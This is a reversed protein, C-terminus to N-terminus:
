AHYQAQVQSDQSSKNIAICHNKKNFHPRPNACPICITFLKKGCHRVQLTVATRHYGLLQCSWNVSRKYFFNSLLTEKAYQAGSIKSHLPCLIANIGRFLNQKVERVKHLSCSVCPLNYARRCSPHNSVCTVKGVSMMKYPRMWSVSKLKDLSSNLILVYCMNVNRNSFKSCYMICCIFLPCEVLKNLGCM